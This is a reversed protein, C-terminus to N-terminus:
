PVRDDATDATTEDGLKRSDSHWNESVKKTKTKRFRRKRVNKM